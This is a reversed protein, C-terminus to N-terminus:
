ATLSEFYPRMVNGMRCLVAQKWLEDATAKKKRWADHLAEVAVNLGVKSRYKFCDVVTRAASTIQVTVGCIVHEEIGSALMEPKSWSVELRPNSIRHELPELPAKGM